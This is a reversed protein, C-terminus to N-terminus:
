LTTDSGSFEITKKSGNLHKLDITFMDEDANTKLAYTIKATADNCMFLDNVESVIRERSSEENPIQSNKVM